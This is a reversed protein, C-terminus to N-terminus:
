YVQRHDSGHRQGVERCLEDLEDCPRDPQEPSCLIVFGVNVARLPRSARQGPPRNEGLSRIARISRVGRFRSISDWRSSLRTM